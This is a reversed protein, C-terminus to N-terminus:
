KSNVKDNLKILIDQLKPNAFHNRAPELIRILYDAAAIKLDMPHLEGKSYCSVLDEYTSFHLDGGFKEERKIDFEKSIPFILNKIWDLIPNFEIEKEPCFAHMIKDKIEEPTDHIFVASKPISKSMKMTSLISRMQSKDEIPWVPPKLLGLILPHHIAIPKKVEGKLNNAVERAIVHAKRQDMGSHAIDIDMIFIDAVQMPPYILRAFIQNDGESRGMITSSKVVRSLTLNKSVKILSEWYKDNNHYLDSGIVFEVKEPDAGVCLLSAKLAEKFYSVAIERIFDIDGGLKDNIWAHWDAIFFTCKIGAEQLDKIVLASMLGSGVHLKGSVEFGIYHKLEKGSELKEKLDEETIVESLHRKILEIRKNTDM